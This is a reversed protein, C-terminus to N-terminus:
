RDKDRRGVPLRTASNRRVRDFRSVFGADM